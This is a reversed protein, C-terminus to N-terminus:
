VTRPRRVSTGSTSMSRRVQVGGDTPEAEAAVEICGTARDFIRQALDIDYGPLGHPHAALLAADRTNWYCHAITVPSEPPEGEIFGDFESLLSVLGSAEENGDFERVAYAGVSSRAPFAGSSGVIERVRPLLVFQLWACFPMTDAFFAQRSQFAEPAPPDSSWVNLRRLELEIRDAFLSADRYSPM